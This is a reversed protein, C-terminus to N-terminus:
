KKKKLIWKGAKPQTKIQIMDFAGGSYNVLPRLLNYSIKICGKFNQEGKFAKSGRLDFTLAASSCCIHM